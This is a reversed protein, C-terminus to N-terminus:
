RLSVTIAATIILIIIAKCFEEGVATDSAIAEFPKPQAKIYFLYYAIGSLLVGALVDGIYHAGLYVTAFIMALCYLLALPAFRHRHYRLSLYICCPFAVHISPMAAVPNTDFTELLVSLNVKMMEYFTHQVYPILHHQAALWPPTTPLILYFVLATYSCCIIAAKYRWFDKSYKHWIYFGVLLFAMFHFAYMVVLIRQLWNFTDPQNLTAQLLHSLSTGPTFLQEFSIIYDTYIPWDYQKLISYYIVGRLLNFGNILALFVLWDRLFLKFRSLCLVLIVFLALFLATKFFNDTFFIFHVIEISIFGSLFVLLQRDTMMFKKNM